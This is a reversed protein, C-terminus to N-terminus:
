PKEAQTLAAGYVCCCNGHKMCNAVTPQMDDPMGTWDGAPCITDKLLARLEANQARLREVDVAQVVAQTRLREIAIWLEERTLPTGIVTMAAKSNQHHL